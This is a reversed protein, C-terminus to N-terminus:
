LALFNIKDASEHVTFPPCTSLDSLNGIFTYVVWSLRVDHGCGQKGTINDPTVPSEGREVRSDIRGIAQQFMVIKNDAV